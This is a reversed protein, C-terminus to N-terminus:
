KKSHNSDLFAVFWTGKEPLDQKVISYRGALEKPDLRNFAFFAGSQLSLNGAKRITLKIAGVYDALDVFQFCVAKEVPDYGLICFKYKLLDWEHCAGSSFMFGGKPSMTLTKSSLKSRPKTFLVPNVTRESM